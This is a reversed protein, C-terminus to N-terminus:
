RILLGRAADAKERAADQDLYKELAALSRHGSIEAVERLSHGNQHANTLVSRRFSTFECWGPWLRRGAQQHRDPTASASRSPM